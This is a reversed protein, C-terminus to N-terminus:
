VHPLHNYFLIKFKFYLKKNEPNGLAGSNVSLSTLCTLLNTKLLSLM